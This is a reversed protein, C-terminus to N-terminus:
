AASSTADRVETALSRLEKEAGSCSCARAQDQAPLGGEALLGPYHRAAYADFEADPWDPLAARLEEQALRVRERATSRRTAAPRARDRDRPLAHAPAPGELRELRRPGGGQHRAVTLVLLLKLRELTQM